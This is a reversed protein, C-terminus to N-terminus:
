RPMGIKTHGSEHKRLFTQVRQWVEDESIRDMCYPMPFRCYDFCPKFPCPKGEIWEAAPHLPAFWEPLQPGFITLTPVGCFAALHGPGSDNGIFLRAKDILKFLEGVSQPTAVEDEGVSLWWSRQDSDCVVCVDYGAGRIREVLRRYRPLPWVRVPLRAGSHVLVYGHERPAPFELQHREPLELELARALTQWYEYRHAEPEPRALPGTLFVQSRLRPFGLRRKAGVLFLLIHDRPDWRGSLGWDFREARLRKVVDFFMGWPWRHLRYKGTFATWPAAFTVVNVGPWFRAQMEVAFPKGLLTIEFKQSAARIFPTAIALDGLGWLEVILLKPKM